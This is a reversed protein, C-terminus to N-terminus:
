PSREVADILFMRQRKARGIRALQYESKPKKKLKPLSPAVEAEALAPHDEDFEEERPRKGTSTREKKKPKQEPEEKKTDEPATKRKRLNYM